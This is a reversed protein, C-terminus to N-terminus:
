KIGLRKMEKKIAKYEELDNPQKHPSLFGTGLKENENTILVHENILKRRKRQYKAKQELIAYKRCTDNCYKQNGHTQQFPEGCYKCLSIRKTM